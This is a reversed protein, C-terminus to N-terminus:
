SAEEAFALCCGRLVGDTRGEANILRSSQGEVAASRIAATGWRLEEFHWGGKLTALRGPGACRM